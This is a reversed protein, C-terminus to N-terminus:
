PHAEGEADDVFRGAASLSRRCLMAASGTLWRRPCLLGARTETVHEVAARCHSCRTVVAVM